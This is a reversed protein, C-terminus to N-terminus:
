CPTHVLASAAEFFSGRCVRCPRRGEKGARRRDRERGGERKLFYGGEIVVVGGERRRDRRGERKLFYGGEIVVVGDRM